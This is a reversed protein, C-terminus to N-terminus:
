LEVKEGTEANYVNQYRIAAQELLGLAWLRDSSRLRLCYGCGQQGMRRPTRQLGAEVGGSRLVQLARQAPTISRFTICDMSM